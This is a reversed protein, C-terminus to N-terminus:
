YKTKREFLIKRVGHNTNWQKVEKFNYKKYLETAPKNKVGTEVTFLESNFSNIVFKILKGAIGQRFFKPSVVLSQIHTSNTSHDIEIVGGLEHNKLFGFFENDSIIYNELSRKLPPFDTANLM